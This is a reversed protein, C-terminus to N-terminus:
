GPTFDAQKHAAQADATVAADITDAVEATARLRDRM